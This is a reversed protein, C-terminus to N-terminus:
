HRDRSSLRELEAGAGRGDRRGRTNESLRSRQNELGNWLAALHNRRDPDARVAVTDAIGLFRACRQARRHGAEDLEAALDHVRRVDVARRLGHDAIEHGIEAYAVVEEDCRLGVNAWCSCISRSM